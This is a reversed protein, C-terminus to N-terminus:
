IVQLKVHEQYLWRALNDLLIAIGLDQNCAQGVTDVSFIHPVYAKAVADQYGIYPQNSVFLCVGPQPNGALWLEITDGTTPRAWTGNERQLMPVDIFEVPLDKIEQPMNIHEYVLKFVDTETQRELVRLEDVGAWAKYSEINEGQMPIVPRAGGLLVLKKFRVGKNWLDIVYQMRDKIRGFLAGLVLVYEYNQLAPEIEQYMHMKYLLSRIAHEHETVYQEIEWRETGSKRLWLKQTQQVIDQLTGDHRVGTLDLLKLMNSSVAGNSDVIAQINSTDKHACCTFLGALMVVFLMYFRSSMHM